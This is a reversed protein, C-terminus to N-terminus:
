RSELIKMIEDGLASIETAAPSRPVTEVVGLGQMMSAPFATRNGLITKAVPTEAESLTALVNDLLRGRAPARNLVILASAKEKRALDLTPQTAWLDMPSPQVPVIVFGGARVAIRADTEAHPPSDIIILDHARKLRDLENAVRWGSTQVLHLGTRGDGLTRERERFWATLSAQPDVDLLAVNGGAASWAVALQAALTTKGAGGKQQAIALTLGRM